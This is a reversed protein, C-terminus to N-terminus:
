EVRWPAHAFMEILFDILVRIRPLRQRGPPVVVWVPFPESMHHDELLPVLAGRRVAAGCLADGLRVIGHGAIALDLLLDANDCTINGRVELHNIGEPTVFPWRALHSVGPIVMCNHAALDAPRRPTGHRALYGPSACILRRGEAIKRAVLSSDGLAGTRLVMDVNEAMLDITRDSITLDIRIDPHRRHFEPLLPALQHKGLATGTNLRILGRPREVCASVEAEAAEIAALIERARRLYTEGEVTLALRRTTRSILVVGLRDELRAVLRSLASATLGLEAAAAAFSGLEAIRTFAQMETANQM